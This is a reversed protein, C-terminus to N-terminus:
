VNLTKKFKNIPYKRSNFIIWRQLIWFSDTGFILTKRLLELKCEAWVLPFISLSNRIKRTTAHMIIAEDSYSIFFRVKEENFKSSKQTSKWKESLLPVVTCWPLRIALNNTHTTRGLSFRNRRKSSQQKKRISVNKEPEIQIHFSSLYQQSDDM